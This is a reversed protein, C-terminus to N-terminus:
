EKVFLVMVGGLFILLLAVGIIGPSGGTDALEPVAVNSPTPRASGSPEPASVSPSPTPTPLVSSTATPTPTPTASPTASVTPTPTPSPSGEQIPCIIVHSLSKDEDDYSFSGNVDAFVSTGPEPRLFVTNAYPGSGAKVIIKDYEGDVVWLEQEAEIEIKTGSECWSDPHNAEPSFPIHGSVTALVIALQVLM